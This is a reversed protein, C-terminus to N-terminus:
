KETSKVNEKIWKEYDKNLKQIKEITEKASKEKQWKTLELENVNLKNFIFMDNSEITIEAAKKDKVLQKNHKILEVYANYVDENKIKKVDIKNYQELMIQQAEQNAADFIKKKDANFQRTREKSNVWKSYDERDKFEAKSCNWIENDFEYRNKYGSNKWKKLLTDKTQNVCSIVKNEKTNTFMYFIIFIIILIVGIISTWIWILKKTM